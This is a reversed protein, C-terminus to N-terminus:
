AYWKKGKDWEEKVLPHLLTLIIEDKKQHAIEEDHSFERNVARLKRIVKKEDESLTKRSPM